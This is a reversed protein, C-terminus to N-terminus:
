TTNVQISPTEQLFKFKKNYNKNTRLHTNMLTENPYHSSSLLLFTNYFYITPKPTTVVVSYTEQTYLLSPYNHTMPLNTVKALFIASHLTCNQDVFLQVKLSLAEQQTNTSVPKLHQVVSFKM